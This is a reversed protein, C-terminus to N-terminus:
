GALRLGTLYCSLDEPRTIPTFELAHAVSYSPELALLRGMVQVAEPKRGLHGLASLYLKYASPINPNLAIAQSSFAIAKEYEGLLLYPLVTAM